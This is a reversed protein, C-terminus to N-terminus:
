GALNDTLDMFIRADAREVMSRQIHALLVMRQWSLSFLAERAARVTKAANTGIIAYQEVFQLEEDLTM